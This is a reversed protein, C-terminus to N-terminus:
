GDIQRGRARVGHLTRGGPEPDSKEVDLDCTAMAPGAFECAAGQPFTSGCSVQSVGHHASDVWFPCIPLLRNMRRARAQHRVCRRDIESSMRQAAPGGAHSLKGHFGAGGAARPALRNGKLDTENSTINRSTLSGVPPLAGGTNRQVFSFPNRFTSSLITMLRPRGAM